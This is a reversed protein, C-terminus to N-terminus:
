RRTQQAHHRPARALVAGLISFRRIGLGHSSPNGADGGDKRPDQSPCAQSGRCAQKYRRVNSLVELVQTARGLACVMWVNLRFSQWPAQALFMMLSAYNLGHTEAASAIKADVLFM